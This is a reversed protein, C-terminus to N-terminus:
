EMEMDLKLTYDTGNVEVINMSPELSFGDGDQVFTFPTDFLGSGLLLTGAADTAYWGYVVTGPGPPPGGAAVFTALSALDEWSGDQKRVPTGNWAPAVAAYGPVEVVTLETFDGIVNTKTPTLNNTYLRIVFGAPFFNTDLEIDTLVDPLLTDPIVYM